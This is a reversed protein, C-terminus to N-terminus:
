QRFEESYFFIFREEEILASEAEQLIFSLTTFSLGSELQRAEMEMM